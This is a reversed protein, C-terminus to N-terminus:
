PGKLENVVDDILADISDVFATVDPEPDFVVGKSEAKTIAQNALLILKAKAKARAAELKVPDLKTANKAIAKEATSCLAGADIFWSSVLAPVNPDVTDVVTVVDDVADNFDGVLTTGPETTGCRLGNKTATAEAKDYSVLFKQAAKKECAELKVSGPDKAPAKSFAALCKFTAQCLTGAATLQAARCKATPDGSPNAIPPMFFDVEGNPGSVVGTSSLYLSPNQDGLNESTAATGFPDFLNLGLRVGAPSSGMLLSNSDAGTRVLDMTDQTSHGIIISNEDVQNQATPTKDVANWSGIHITLSTIAGLYINTHTAENHGHIPTALDVTWDISVPANKTVGLAGLPAAATGTVLSVQGDLHFTATSASASGPDTFGFTLAAIVTLWRTM